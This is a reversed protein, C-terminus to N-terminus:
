ARPMPDSWPNFVPVHALRYDATDRTVVTFGHHLATAAIFLDPQSFTHGAKRGEEVLVRWKLIVDETVSLVRRGFMPRLKHTLWDDLAVRRAPDNVQEIGFRIEALTVESLYLSELSQTAVFSVVKREPRPKRLESVINTDLLWGSV